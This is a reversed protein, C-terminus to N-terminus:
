ETERKDRRYIDISKYGEALLKKMEERRKARTEEQAASYVYRAWDKQYGPALSQYFALAEPMHQLAKKVDPINSVYDAVRQSPKSSADKKKRAELKFGVVTFVENLGVMRAFKMSSTGMYGDEDAGLGEFLSDRHIYEPYVKNGKKPYAAFLYGGKNLYNHDLVKKVLKQLADMNLVYAFILDYGSDTLETDYDALGSLSDDDEPKDLVAAKQFQLLNLKDVITKSM